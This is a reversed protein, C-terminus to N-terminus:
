EYFVGRWDLIITYMQHLLCACVDLHNHTYRHWLEWVTQRVSSNNVKSTNFASDQPSSSLSIYVCDGDKFILGDHQRLVSPVLWGCICCWMGSCRLRLMFMSAEPHSYVNVFVQVDKLGSMGWSHIWIQRQERLRRTALQQEIYLSRSHAPFQLGYLVETAHSSGSCGDVINLMNVYEHSSYHKLMVMAHVCSIPSFYAIHGWCIWTMSHLQM